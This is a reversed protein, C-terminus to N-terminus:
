WSDRLYIMIYEKIGINNVYTDYNRIDIDLPVRKLMFPDITYIWGSMTSISTGRNATCVIYVCSSTDSRYTPFLWYETWLWLGCYLLYQPLLANLQSHWLLREFAVWCEVTYVHVSNLTETSFSNHNLNINRFICTKAMKLPFHWYFHWPFMTKIKPLM